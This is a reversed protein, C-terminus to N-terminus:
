LCSPGLSTVPHIQVSVRSETPSPPPPEALKNNILTPRDHRRSRRGAHADPARALPNTTIPKSPDRPDATPSVPHPILEDVDGDVIVAPEGVGFDEGVLLGRGRIAEKAAGNGEVVAVADFDLPDQCVVAGGVAGEHMRDGAALEADAM